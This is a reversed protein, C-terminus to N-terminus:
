AEEHECEGDWYSSSDLFASSIFDPITPVFRIIHQSYSHSHSCGKPLTGARDNLEQLFAQLLICRGSSGLRSSNELLFITVPLIDPITSRLPEQDNPQPLSVPNNFWRTWDRSQTTSMSTSTQPPISREPENGHDLRYNQAFDQCFKETKM